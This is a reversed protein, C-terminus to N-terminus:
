KVRTIVAHRKGAADVWEEVTSGTKLPPSVPPGPDAGHPQADDKGWGIQVLGADDTATWVDHGAPNVSHAFHETDLGNIERFGSKKTTVTAM